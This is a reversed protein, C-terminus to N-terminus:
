CRRLMSTKTGKAQVFSKLEDNWFNTFIDNRIEDRTRQWVDLPGSLSRKYALRLARDFAVWCMVRSHLLERPGGRVEWIGLVGGITACGIWCVSFRRGDRM